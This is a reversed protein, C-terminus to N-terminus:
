SSINRNQTKIVDEFIKEYRAGAESIGHWNVAWNRGNKKKLELVDRNQSYFNLLDAVEFDNKVSDFPISGYKRISREAYTILHCGMLLSEIAISGMWGLGFDDVVIDSISYLSLIENRTFAKRDEKWLWVVMHEIGLDRIVKKALAVDRSMESDLLILQYNDKLNDPLMALARFLVDNAKWDGSAKDSLSDDFLLRSPMFINMKLKLLDSSSHFFDLAINEQRVFRKEDLLVYSPTAFYKKLDVNLQIIKQRYVDVDDSIIATSQRIGKKAFISLLMNFLAHKLMGKKFYNRVVQNFLFPRQFLDMGSVCFVSRTPIQHSFYVFEASGAVLDYEKFKEYLDTKNFNLYNRFRLNKTRKIWKPYGQALSGDDSEPMTNIGRGDVVYLDVEHGKSRLYKAVLFLNNCVDYIFAIKM